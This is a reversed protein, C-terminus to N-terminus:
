GNVKDEENNSKNDSGVAALIENKTDIVAKEVEEVPINEGVPSLKSHPFLYCDTPVRKKITQKIEGTIDNFIGIKFINLDRLPTNLFVEALKTRIFDEDTSAFYIGKYHKSVKDYVAYVNYIGGLLDKKKM